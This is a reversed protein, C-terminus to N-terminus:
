LGRGKRLHRGESLVLIGQWATVHRWGAGFVRPVAQCTAWGVKALRFSTYDLLEHSDADLQLGKCAVAKLESISAQVARPCTPLARLCPLFNVLVPPLQCARSSAPGIWATLEPNDQCAPTHTTATRHRALRAATTHCKM